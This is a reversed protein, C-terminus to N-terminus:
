SSEYLAEIHYLARYKFERRWVRGSVASWVVAMDDPRYLGSVFGDSWVAQVKEEYLNWFASQMAPWVAVM